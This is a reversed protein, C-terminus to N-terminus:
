EFTKIVWMPVRLGDDLPNRRVWTGNGSTDVLYYPIGGPPTVKLMLINGSSDRMEEVKDGQQVPIRVRPEEAGAAAPIPPPEPLPELRPPPPVQAQAGLAIALAGAGLLHSRLHSRLYSRLSSRM